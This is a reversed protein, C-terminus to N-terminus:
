VLYYWREFVNGNKKDIGTGTCTSCNMGGKGQCTSCKSSDGKGSVTNLNKVANISLDRNTTSHIQKKNSFVKLSCKRLPYSKVCVVFLSIILLILQMFLDM